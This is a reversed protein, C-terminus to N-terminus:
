RIVEEDNSLARELENKSPNGLKFVRGNLIYTPTAVVLHNYKGRREARDVVKVQVESFRQGIEGALVEARRCAFCDGDVYVELETM